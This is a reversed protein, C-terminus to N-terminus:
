FVYFLTPLELGLKPSSFSENGNYAEAHVEWESLMQFIDVTFCNQATANPVSIDSLLSVDVLM